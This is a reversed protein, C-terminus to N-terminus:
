LLPEDLVVSPADYQGEDSINEPDVHQVTRYKSSLYREKNDSYYTLFLDCAFTSGGLLGIGAGLQTLLAVWDFKGARGHVAAVIYVGYLKWLDRKLTTNGQKVLPDYGTDPLRYQFMNRFNFGSSIPSMPEDLRVMNISPECLDLSRDLNCDYNFDMLIMAGSAATANWRTHSQKLIDQITWLNRGLTPTTSGATNSRSVNYNPFVINTRMYVTFDLVGDLVNKDKADVEQPCWGDVECYDNVCNGTLMGFETYKNAPCCLTTNHYQSCNCPSSWQECTGRTQEQTNAFNTTVFVSNPLLPPFVLDTSDYMIGNSDRVSGKVKIFTSSVLNDYAQYGKEIIISYVVVYLLLFFTLIYYLIALKPDKIKVFMASEYELGM